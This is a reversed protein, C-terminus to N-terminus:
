FELLQFRIQNKIEKWLIRIDFSIFKLKKERYEVIKKKNRENLRCQSM